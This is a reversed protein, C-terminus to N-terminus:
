VDARPDMVPTSIRAGEEEAGADDNVELLRSLTSRLEQIAKAVASLQAASETKGSYADISRALVLAAQALTARMGDELKLKALDNKVAREVAGVDVEGDDSM